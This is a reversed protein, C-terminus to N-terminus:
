NIIELYIELTKLTKSFRIKKIITVRKEIIIFEFNNIKQKFLIILLYRLYSKKSKLIIKFRTFLAFITKLYQFHEKASRFFIM